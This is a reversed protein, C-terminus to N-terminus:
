DGKCCRILDRCYMLSKERDDEYIARQLHYLDNILEGYLAHRIHEYVNEIIHPKDKAFGHTTVGFEAKINWEVMREPNIIDPALTEFVEVNVLNSRSYFEQGTLKCQIEDLIKM